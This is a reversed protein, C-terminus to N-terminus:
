CCPWGLTDTMLQGCDNSLPIHYPPFHVICFYVTSKVQSASLDPQGFDLLTSMTLVDMGGPELEIRWEWLVGTMANCLVWIHESSELTSCARPHCACVVYPQALTGSLFCGSKDQQRYWSGPVSVGPRMDFSGDEHSTVLTLMMRGGLPGCDALIGFLQSHRLQLWCEVADANGHAAAKATVIPMIPNLQRGQLNVNKHAKM